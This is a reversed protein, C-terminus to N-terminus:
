QAEADKCGEISDIAKQTAPIIETADIWISKVAPAIKSKSEIIGFNAVESLSISEAEHWQRMRRADELIVENGCKEALLGFWVGASYTRVIVKEGIMRNLSKSETKCEGSFLRTTEKAEGITMDNICKEEGSLPTTIGKIPALGMVKRQDDIADDIVELMLKQREEETANRFYDSFSTYKM